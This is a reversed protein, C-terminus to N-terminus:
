QFFPAVSAAFFATKQGHVLLFKCTTSLWDMEIKHAVFDGM